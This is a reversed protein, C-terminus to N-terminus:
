QGLSSFALLASELNFQWFVYTNRDADGLSRSGFAVRDLFGVVGDGADPEPRVKNFGSLFIYYTLFDAFACIFIDVGFLCGRRNDAVLCHNDVLQTQLRMAQPLRDASGM